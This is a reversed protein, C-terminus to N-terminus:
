QVAACAVYVVTSYTHLRQMYVWQEMSMVEFPYIFRRIIDSCGLIILISLTNNKHTSVM